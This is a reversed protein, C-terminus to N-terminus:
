EIRRDSFTLVMNKSILFFNEASQCDRAWIGVLYNDQIEGAGALSSSVAFLFFVFVMFGKAINLTRRM